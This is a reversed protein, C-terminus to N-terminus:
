LGRACPIHVRAYRMARRVLSVRNSSFNRPDSYGYGGSGYLWLPATGDLPTDRRHVLSIPVRTGAAPAAHLRESVYRTADYGGLVPQEKRLVRQRTNVDYDFVSRPTVFSEYQFRGFSM